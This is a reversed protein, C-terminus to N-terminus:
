RGDGGAPGFLRRLAPVRLDHLVFTVVGWVIMEQEEGMEIAPYEQDDESEALLVVRERGGVRRRCLRKVTMEGDVCAVVVCGNVPEAARDVVLVDGDFIGAKVMSVGGVRVFYCHAQHAGTLEHLDLVEGVYDDAPSPFGAAVLSLVYPLSPGRPLDGAQVVATIRLPGVRSSSVPDLVPAAPSPGFPETRGTDGQKDAM